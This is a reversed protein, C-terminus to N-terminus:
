PLHMQWSQNTDPPAIDEEMEVVETMVGAVEMMAVVAATAAVMQGEEQNYHLTCKHLLHRNHRHAGGSISATTYFGHEGGGTRSANCISTRTGFKDRADQVFKAKGQHGNGQSIKDIAQWTSTRYLSSQNHPGLEAEEAVMIAAEAVMPVVVQGDEAVAVSGELAVVQEVTDAMMVQAASAALVVM